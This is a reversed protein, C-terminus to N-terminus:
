HKPDTAVSESLPASGRKLARQGIVFLLMAAALQLGRDIWLNNIVYTDFLPDKVIMGMGTLALIAAGLAGLLPWRDMLKTVFGSGWVVLPITILLGLLVLDWRGQAAGGVGLVNDVGMLADAVIITKM